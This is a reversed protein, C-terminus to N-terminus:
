LGNKNPEICKIYKWNGVQYTYIDYNFCSDIDWYYSHSNLGTEEQVEWKVAEYSTEGKKIKGCVTQLMEPMVKINHHRQSMFLGDQNYLVVLIYDANKRNQSKTLPVEINEIRSFYDAHQMKTGSKHEVDFQYNAM